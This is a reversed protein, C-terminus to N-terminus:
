SDGSAPQDDVDSANTENPGRSTDRVTSLGDAEVDDLMERKLRAVRAPDSGGLAHREAKVQTWTRAVLVHHEVLM